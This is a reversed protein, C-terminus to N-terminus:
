HALNKDYIEEYLESIENKLDQYQNDSIKGRAHTDIVERKLDDLSSIDNDDLKGDDYLSDIRKRYEQVRRGEKKSKIWGIISPISWGVVSSVMVGYLPIWYEPPIPPPVAKFYANFSGFRTINFTSATDNQTIGFINLFSNLPNDSITSTRLTITSNHGLNEIWSAFEFGKNPKAICNTGFSVYLYQNIPSDITNCIIQGSNGPHINFTVAAVVKNTVGDIVSIGDSWSNAVYLTNSSPNFTASNPRTGVSIDKIKRNNTADIVSVTNSGSNAVYM